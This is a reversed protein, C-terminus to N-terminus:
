DRDFIPPLQGMPKVDRAQGQAQGGLGALPPLPPGGGGGGGGGGRGGGGGSGRGGASPPNGGQSHASGGRLLPFPARQWLPQPAVTAQTTTTDATTTVTTVMIPSVVPSTRIENPVPALRLLATHHTSQISASTNTPSTPLTREQTPTETSMQPDTEVLAEELAAAPPNIDYNHISPLPDGLATKGKKCIRLAHWQGQYLCAPRSRSYSLEDGECFILYPKGAKNSAVYTKCRVIRYNPQTILIEQDSLVKIESLSSTSSTGAM